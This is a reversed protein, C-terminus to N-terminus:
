DLWTVIEEDPIASRGRLRERVENYLHARHCKAMRIDLAEREQHLKRRMTTLFAQCDQQMSRQLVGPKAAMVEQAKKPLPAESVVTFRFGRPAGSEEDDLPEIRYAGWAGRRPTRPGSPVVQEVETALAEEETLTQDLVWVSKSPEDLADVISCRVYAVQNKQPWSRWVAHEPSGTVHMLETPDMHPKQQAPRMDMELMLALARLADGEPDMIETKCCAMVAGDAVRAGCVNDNEKVWHWGDGTVQMAFMAEEYLTSVDDVQRTCLVEAGTATMGKAQQQEVLRGARLVQGSRLLMHLERLWPEMEPEPETQAQAQAPAQEGQNHLESLQLQLQMDGTRLPKSCKTKPRPMLPSPGQPPAPVAWGEQQPPEEAEEEVDEAAPVLRENVQVLRYGMLRLGPSKGHLAADLVSRLKVLDGPSGWVTAVPERVGLHVQFDQTPAPKLMKFLEHRLGTRFQLRFSEKGFTEEITDPGQAMFRMTIESDRLEPPKDLDESLDKERQGDTRQLDSMEALKVKLLTNRLEQLELEKQFVAKELLRRREEVEKDRAKASSKATEEIAQLSQGHRYEPQPAAEEPEEEDQESLNDSSPADDNVQVVVLGIQVEHRAMQVLEFPMHMQITQQVRNESLQDELVRQLESPNIKATTNVVVTVVVDAEHSDRMGVIHVMNAKVLRPLQRHLAFGLSSEFSRVLEPRRLLQAKSVGLLPMDMTVGPQRTLKEGTHFDLLGYSQSQSETEGGQVRIGLKRQLSPELIQIDQNVDAMARHLEVVTMCFQVYRQRAPTVTRGPRQRGKRSQPTETDTSTMSGEVISSAVSSAGDDQSAVDESVESATKSTVKGMDSSYTSTRAMSPSAEFNLLDVTNRRAELRSRSFMRRNKLRERFKGSHKLEEIYATRGRVSRSYAEDVLTMLLDLTFYRRVRLVQLLLGELGQIWFLVEFSNLNNFDISALRFESTQRGGQPHTGAEPRLEVKAVMSHIAQWPPLLNLICNIHTFWPRQYFWKGTVDLKADRSIVFPVIVINYVTCWVAMGILVLNAAALLQDSIQGFRNKLDVIMEDAGPEAALAPIGVVLISGMLLVDACLSFKFLSHYDFSQFPQVMLEIITIVAVSAFSSIVRVALSNTFRCCALILFKAIALIVWVKCSPKYGSFLIGFQMNTPYDWTDRRHVRWCYLVGAPVVVLITFTVAEAYIHTTRYPGSECLIDPNTLLRPLGDYAKTCTDADLHTILFGPLAIFLWAIFNNVTKKRRRRLENGLLWAEYKSNALKSKDLEFAKEEEESIALATVTKHMTKMGQMRVSRARKKLRAPAQRIHHYMYIVCLGGFFGIAQIMLGLSVARDPSQGEGLCEFGAMGYPDTVLGEV